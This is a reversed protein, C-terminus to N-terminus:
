TLLSNLQDPLKKLAYIDYRSSKGELQYSPSQNNLFPAKRPRKIVVRYNVRSLALPLLSDADDDKGVVSHFAAMEKKVDASKQREPFMPDLYIVDPFFEPSLSELYSHSSQKILVMRQLLAHLESDERQAFDLARNLGDELLIQVVPSRELMTTKCGLSALVFSDKGLGATADLVHPYCGAKVGVAKAILQGKGGGFKRRHDVAGQTFEALIPGPAKRGTQQLIIAADSFEVVFEYTNIADPAQDTLLQVQLKEALTEALTLKSFDNCLVAISELM